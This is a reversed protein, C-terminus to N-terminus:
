KKSKIIVSRNYKITSYPNYNIIETEVIRPGVRLFLFKKSRKGGYMVQSISDKTLIDVSDGCSSFDIHKNKFTKCKITDAILTDRIRLHYESTITTKSAALVLKAKLGKVESVLAKWEPDGSLSKGTNLLEVEKRLHEFGKSDKFRIEKEEKLFVAYDSAEKKKAEFKGKYM